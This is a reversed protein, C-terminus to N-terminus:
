FTKKRKQQFVHEYLMVRKRLLNAILKVSKENKNLEIFNFDLIDMNEVKSTEKFSEFIRIFKLSKEDKSYQDTTWCNDTNEVLKTDVYIVENSRLCRTSIQEDIESISSLTRPNVAVSAIMSGDRSEERSCWSPVCMTSKKKILSLWTDMYPDLKSRRKRTLRKDRDIAISKTRGGTAPLSQVRRSFLGAM